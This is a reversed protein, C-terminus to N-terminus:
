LILDGPSIDVVVPTGWYKAIDPGFLEEMGGQIMPSLEVLVYSAFNFAEEVTVDAVAPNGDHDIVDAEPVGGSLAAVLFFTFLGNNIPMGPIEEGVEAAIGTKTTAMLVMRGPGALETMGGMLCADFIFIIRNSDFHKFADRLEYDWIFDVPNGDGEDSVIGERVVGQGKGQGQPAQTFRAGHGSYFFVVEDGKEELGKVYEITNLINERSADNGILPIVVDFGYFYSLVGTMDLADEEPFRLEFAFPVPSFPIEGTTCPVSGEYKSGILIAYRKGDEPVSSLVGTLPAFQQGGRWSPMGGQQSYGSVLGAKGMIEITGPGDPPGAAFAVGSLTSVLASAVVIGVTLKATSKLRPWKM